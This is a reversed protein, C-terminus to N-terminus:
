DGDLGFLRERLSRKRAKEALLVSCDVDEVVDMILSGGVLRSLLGRETAGIVLMTADQAAREIAAEIDGGEVRLDADTLGNAEAWEAIFTEGAERDDDVHLLTVAADYEDALHRAVMASLESDPGGATPVLIREPDFGRDKLVLFDCPISDTV